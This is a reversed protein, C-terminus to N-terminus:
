QENIEIEGKFVFKAPGQLLVNSYHHHGKKEFAVNLNGGRAIVKIDNQQMLGSYNAAIATATIGTGCALTEDEVGREYTRIKIGETTVTAFNVNAGSKGLRNNHRLERGMSFVDISEIEQNFLVLHPSGTNIFFGGLMQSIETVDMMQLSIIHENKNTEIITASHPGDTAIFTTQNGILGTDSAFAVLCRGGNGCMTSENGDSNYYVMRFDYDNDKKLLMLGDAGIGFRRDCLFSILQAQHPESDLLHQHTPEIIIFDNGAGQYKHFQLYM